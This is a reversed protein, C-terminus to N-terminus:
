RPVRRGAALLDRVTGEPDQSTVLGTGVLALRYGLRAAETIHSPRTIGSEAVAPLHAPLLPALSALRTRDVKLTALNRTNVGVLIERDFVVAAAELDAEDFVEVLPFMGLSRALGAMEVLLDGRCLRALILVGSAGAARAEVVQVPDVLFDKRMVPVEVTAAVAELHGVSGGFRTPETLVSLAAAGAAAFGRALEPVTRGPDDGHLLVGETPSAPKPEAILDFGSGDLHLPRPPPASAAKAELEARRRRAEAARDRSSSAMVTLFDSM